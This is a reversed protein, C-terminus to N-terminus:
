NTRATSDTDRQAIKISVSFCTYRERKSNRSTNRLHQWSCRYHEAGDTFAPFPRPSEVTFRSVGVIYPSCLNGTRTQAM